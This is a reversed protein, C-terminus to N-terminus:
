HEFIIYKTLDLFKLGRNQSIAILQSDEKIQGKELENKEPFRIEIAEKEVYLIELFQDKAFILTKNGFINSCYILAKRNDDISAEYAKNVKRLYKIEGSNWFDGLIDRGTILILTECEFSELFERITEVSITLPAKEKRINRSLVREFIDKDERRAVNRGITYFFTSVLIPLDKLYISEISENFLVEGLMVEAESSIQDSIKWEVAERFISETELAERIKKKAMEKKEQVIPFSREIREKEKKWVKNTRDLFEITIKLFETLAGAFVEQSIIGSNTFSGAIDQFLVKNSEFAKITRMYDPFDTCGKAKIERTNFSEIKEVFDSVFSVKGGELLFDQPKENEFFIWESNEELLRILRPGSYDWTGRINERMQMFLAKSRILLYFQIAERVPALIGIEGLISLSDRLAWRVLAEPRFGKIFDEHLQYNVVSFSKGVEDRSLLRAVFELTNKYISFVGLRFLLLFFKDELNERVKNSKEYLELEHPARTPYYGKGIDSVKLYMDELVTLYTDFFDTKKRNIFTYGVNFSENVIKELTEQRRGGGEQIEPKDFELFDEFINKIMFLIENILSEKEKMEFRLIDQLIERLSIVYIKAALFNKNEKISIELSSLRDLYSNVAEVQDLQVSKIIIPKISEFIEGLYTTESKVDFEMFYVFSDIFPRMTEPGYEVSRKAVDRFNKLLFEITSPSESYAREFITKTYNCGKEISKM